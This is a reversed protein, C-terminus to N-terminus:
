FLPETARHLAIVMSGFILSWSILQGGFTECILHPVMFSQAFHSGIAWYLYWQDYMPVIPQDLVFSLTLIVPNVKRALDLNKNLLIIGTIFISAAFVHQLIALTCAQVYAQDGEDTKPYKKVLFVDKDRDNFEYTMQGVANWIHGLKAFVICAYIRVMYKKREGYYARM